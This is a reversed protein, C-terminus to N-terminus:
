LYPALIEVANGSPDLVYVSRTGDRHPKLEGFEEARPSVFGVHNPHEGPTVLALRANSFELLAWTSDQYAVRCAFRQRYWAVAAPIDEATIAVHDLADLAAPAQSQPASQATATNNM